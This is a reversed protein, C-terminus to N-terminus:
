VVRELVAAFFGDTQSDPPSTRFFGREDSLDAASANERLQPAVAVLGSVLRIGGAEALIEDV